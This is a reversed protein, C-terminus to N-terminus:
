KSSVDWEAASWPFTHTILECHQFRTNCQRDEQLANIKAKHWVLGYAHGGPCRYVCSRYAALLVSQSKNKTDM